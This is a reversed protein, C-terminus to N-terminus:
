RKPAAQKREPLFFLIRRGKAGNCYGVSCFVVPIIPTIVYYFDPSVHLTNTFWDKFGVFMIQLFIAISRPISYLNSAWHDTRLSQTATTLSMRKDGYFRLENGDEDYLKIDQKVQCEKSSANEEVTVTGGENSFLKVEKIDKKVEIESTEDSSSAAVAESSQYVKIENGNTDLVTVPSQYVIFFSFVAVMIGCVICIANGALAIWMGKLRNYKARNGDIAPKDAKGLEYFMTYMIYVFLVACALNTIFFLTNNDLSFFTMVAALLAICFQNMIVKVIDYSYKKFNNIM